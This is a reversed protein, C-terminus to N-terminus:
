PLVLRYPLARENRHVASSNTRVCCLVMHGGDVLHAWAKKMSFFLFGHLWRDLTPHDKYSQRDDAKDSVYIELDFFPPSTLVLDFHEEDALPGSEFPHYRVEFSCLSCHHTFAHAPSLFHLWASAGSAHTNVLMPGLLYTCEYMCACVCICMCARTTVSASATM